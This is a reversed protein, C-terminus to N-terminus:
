EQTMNELTLAKGYKLIIKATLMAYETDDTGVPDDSVFGEIWGYKDRIGQVSMGETPAGLADGVAQGILCGYIRDFEIQM